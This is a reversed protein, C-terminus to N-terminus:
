GHSSSPPTTDDEPQTIVIPNDISANVTARMSSDLKDVLATEGMAKLQTM